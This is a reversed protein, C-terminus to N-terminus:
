KKVSSYLPFSSFIKRQASFNATNFIFKNYTVASFVIMNLWENELVIPAGPITTNKIEWKVTPFFRTKSLLHIPKWM